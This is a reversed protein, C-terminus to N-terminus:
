LEEARLARPDLDRVRAADDLHALMGRGSQPSAVVRRDADRRTQHLAALGVRDDRGAIGARRHGRRQEDESAHTADVSGRQAAHERHGALPAGRTQEIRARRHVGACAIQQLVRLHGGREHLLNVADRTRADSQHVDTFLGLLAVLEREFRVREERRRLVDVEVAVDFAAVDQAAHGVDREGIAEGAVDDRLRELAREVDHLAPDARVDETTGEALDGARERQGAYAPEAASEIVVRIDRRREEADGADAHDRM